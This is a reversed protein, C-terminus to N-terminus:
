KGIERITWGAPGKELILTQPFAAIISHDLTDRRSIRVTASRGEVEVSQIAIVVEQSKISTFAKQLRDTEEKSMNPKATKFLALGKTEIARGYDAVVRRIAAEDPSDATTTTSAWALPSPTLAVAVLLVGGLPLRKARRRM